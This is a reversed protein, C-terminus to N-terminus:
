REGAAGDAQQGATSGLAEDGGLFLAFLVLSLDARSRSAPSSCPKISLSVAGAPILGRSRLVSARSVIAGLGSM